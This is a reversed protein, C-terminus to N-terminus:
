ALGGVALKRYHDKIIDVPIETDYPVRFDYKRAAKEWPTDAKHALASLYFASHGGYREWIWSILNCVEEDDDAVLPAPSFPNDKQIHQIPTRGYTKLIHYLSKLVPGHAWVQPSEDLIPEDHFALWWGYSMYVLKQLKMHEAGIPGAKRIFENAFALPKYMM